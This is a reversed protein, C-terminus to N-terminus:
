EATRPSLLGQISKVIGRLGSFVAYITIIPGIPIIYLSFRFFFVGLGLTIISKVLNGAAEKRTYKHPSQRRNSWFYTHGNQSYEEDKFDANHNYGYQTQRNEASDGNSAYPNSYQSGAAGMFWDWFPDGTTGSQTGYQYGSPRTQQAYAETSGYQDYQRRKSEDGLVSYAASINKFKEEAAKDGPNRDPHYKFAAERYAKKIEDATATKSVGLVQYLDDM